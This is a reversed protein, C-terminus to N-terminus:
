APPAMYHCLLLDVGAPALKRFLVKRKVVPQGFPSNLNRVFESNKRFLFTTKLL